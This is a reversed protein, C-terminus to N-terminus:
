RNVAHRMEANSVCRPGDASLGGRPPMQLLQREAYLGPEATWPFRAFPLKRAAASAGLVAVILTPPRCEVQSAMEFARKIGVREEGAIIGGRSLLSTQITPRSDLPVDLRQLADKDREDGHGPERGSEGGGQPSTSAFRRTPTIRLGVGGGRVGGRLPSPFEARGQRAMQVPGDQPQEPRRFRRRPPQDDCHRHGRRGLRAFRSMARRRESVAIGYCNRPPAPRHLLHLNPALAMEPRCRRALRIGKGGWPPKRQRQEVRHGTRKAAGRRHSRRGKRAKPRRAHRRRSKWEGRRRRRVIREVGRPQPQPEVREPARQVIQRALRQAEGAPLRSLGGQALAATKAVREPRATRGTGQRRSVPPVFVLDVRHEGM